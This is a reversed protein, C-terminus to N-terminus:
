YASFVQPYLAHLALCLPCPAIVGHGRCLPLKVNKGENPTLVSLNIM